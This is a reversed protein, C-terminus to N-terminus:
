TFKMKKSFEIVIPIISAALHKATNLSKRCLIANKLHLMFFQFVLLIGSYNTLEAVPLTYLSRGNQVDAM